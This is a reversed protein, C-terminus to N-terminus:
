KAVTFNEFRVGGAGEGPALLGVGTADALDADSFKAPPSVSLRNEFWVYITRGAREVNVRTLDTLPALGTDGVRTERGELVKIVTWVGYGPSAFIGWYNDGDSYRFVIGVGNRLVPLSVSVTRDTHRADV